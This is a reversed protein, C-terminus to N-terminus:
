KKYKLGYAVVGFAVSVNLSKKEGSMPIDVVFDAMKLITSPLGDVENGMVLAIKKKRTKFEYYPISKKDQEVAVILYGEKKLDELAIVTDKYQEYPIVKEAGLAVKAFDQRYRGFRDLPSPTYGCLYIKEIGAGDSTRFISGTNHASRINHLVVIM